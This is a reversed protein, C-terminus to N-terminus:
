QIVERQECRSQVPCLVEVGDSNRCSGFSLMKESFTTWSISLVIRVCYSFIVEGGAEGSTPTPVLVMGTVRDLDFLGAFPFLGNRKEVLFIVCM